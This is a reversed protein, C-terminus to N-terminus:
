DQNQIYASDPGADTYIQPQELCEPAAERLHTQQGTSSHQRSQIQFPHPIRSTISGQHRARKM